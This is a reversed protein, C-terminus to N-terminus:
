GYTDDIVGLSMHHIRWGSVLTGIMPVETVEWGENAHEELFM